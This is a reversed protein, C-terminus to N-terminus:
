PLLCPLEPESLAQQAPPIVTFEADIADPDVAPPTSSSMTMLHRAVEAEYHHWVLDQVWRAHASKQADLAASMAAVDESSLTKKSLNFTFPM